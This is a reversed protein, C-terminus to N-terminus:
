QHGVPRGAGAHNPLLWAFPSLKPHGGSRGIAAADSEYVVGKLAPGAQLGQTGAQGGPEIPALVGRETQELLGALGKLLAEVEEPALVSDEVEFESPGVPVLTPDDEILSELDERSLDSESEVPKPEQAKRDRRRRSDKGM